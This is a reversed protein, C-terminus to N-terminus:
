GPAERRGAPREAMRLHDALREEYEAMTEQKAGRRHFFVRRAIEAMVPTGVLLNVLQAPFAGDMLRRLAHKIGFGSFEQALVRDPAPGLHQLHDAIVQGARRGYRLAPHIGGGTLPSVMGAADGVLLVGEAAFPLVLGGCPILGSRREALAAPDYAFLDGTHSRFAGLDPKRNRSTALGVQFFGPAPAVWGIYGPAIRHDVFCHLFLSYCGGLASYEAELGTLFRTNRGLGLIRAVSSRAGDAGVLYRARIGAEPLVIDGNERSESRVSTAYRMTAGAREAEEALWRLLGATETTLFYYGPAFLDMSRMSRAYLRVGYIPRTYRAPVDLEDGAEKVIIGTTHVRGPM